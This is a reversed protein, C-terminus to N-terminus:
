LKRQIKTLDIVVTNKKSESRLSSHTSSLFSPKENTADTEAFVNEPSPTPCNPAKWIYDRRLCTISANKKLKLLKRLRSGFVSTDFHGFTGWIVQFKWVDHLFSTVSANTIINIKVIKFRIVKLDELKDAKSTKTEYFRWKSLLKFVYKGIRLQFHEFIPKSRNKVDVPSICVRYL